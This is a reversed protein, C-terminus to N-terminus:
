EDRRGRHAAPEVLEDQATATPFRLADPKGAVTRGSSSM